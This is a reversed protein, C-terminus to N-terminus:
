CLPKINKYHSLGKLFFYCKTWYNDKEFMCSCARKYCYGIENLIEEDTASQIIRNKYNEFSNMKNQKSM